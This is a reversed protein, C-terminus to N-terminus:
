FFCTRYILFTLSRLFFKLVFVFHPWRRRRSRWWCIIEAKSGDTSPCKFLPFAKSSVSGPLRCCKIRKAASPQLWRQQDCCVREWFFFFFWNHFHIGRNKWVICSVTKGKLRLLYALFFMNENTEWRFCRGGGGASLLHLSLQSVRPSHRVAFSIVFFSFSLGVRRAGSLRRNIVVNSSCLNLRAVIRCSVNISTLRVVELPSRFLPLRQSQFPPSARPPYFSSSFCFSSFESSTRAILVGTLM